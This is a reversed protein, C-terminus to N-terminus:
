LIKMREMFRYSKRVSKSFVNIYITVKNNFLFILFYIELYLCMTLVVQFINKLSVFLMSTLFYCADSLNRQM